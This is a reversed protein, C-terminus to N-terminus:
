AIGDADVFSVICGPSLRAPPDRDLDWMTEETTGVLQWGGPSTRPYVGSFEGALGVAGAPVSTRAEERRPVRLRADGGSLYAFGPTFGGFAVRWPTGTHARVVESESLGTLGAVEALDVGDYHVPIEVAAVHEHAGGGASPRLAGLSRRLRALDTGPHAVVLVTRAAPVIDVVGDLDVERVADSWTVVDEVRDFEALLARDGYPLLNM